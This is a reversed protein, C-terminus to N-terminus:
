RRYGTATTILARKRDFSRDSIVELIGAAAGAFPLTPLGPVRTVEELDITTHSVAEGKKLNVPMVVTWPSAMAPLTAAESTVKDQFAPAVVTRYILRAFWSAKDASAGAGFASVLVLRSGAADVAKGIGPLVRTLLPDKGKGVISCVVADAGTFAETMAAVDEVSGKVVTLHDRPALRSPDRVYALVEHGEKIARSLVASGINGTAGIIVIKM